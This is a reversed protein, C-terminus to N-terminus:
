RIPNRAPNISTSAWSDEVTGRRGEGSAGGFDFEQSPGIGSIGLVQDSGFNLGNLTGGKVLVGCTSVFSCGTSSDAPIASVAKMSPSQSFACISNELM